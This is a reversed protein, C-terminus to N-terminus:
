DKELNNWAIQKGNNYKEIWHSHVICLLLFFGNIIFIPYLFYDFNKSFNNVATEIQPQLVNYNVQTYKSIIDYGHHEVFSMLGTKIAIVIALFIEIITNGTKAIESNSFLNLMISLILYILFTILNSFPKIVKFNSQIISIILFSIFSNVIVFYLLFWKLSTFIKYVHNIPNQFCALLMFIFAIIVLIFTALSNNFVNYLIVNLVSSLIFLFAFLNSTNIDKHKKYFRILKNQTNWIRNFIFKM